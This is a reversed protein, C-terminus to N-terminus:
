LEFRRRLPGQWWQGLKMADLGEEAVAAGHKLVTASGVLRLLQAFAKM